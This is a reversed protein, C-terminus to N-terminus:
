DISVFLIYKNILKTKMYEGPLYSTAYIYRGIKGTHCAAAYLKVAQHAQEHYAVFTKRGNEQRPEAQEVLVGMFTKSRM